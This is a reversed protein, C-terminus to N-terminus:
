VEVPSLMEIISILYWKGKKKNEIKKIKKKKQCWSTVAGVIRNLVKAVPGSTSKPTSPLPRFPVVHINEGM